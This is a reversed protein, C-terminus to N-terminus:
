RLSSRLLPLDAAEVVILGNTGDHLAEHYMSGTGIDSQSYYCRTLSVRHAM